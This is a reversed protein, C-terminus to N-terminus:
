SGWKYTLRGVVDWFKFKVQENYGGAGLAGTSSVTQGAVNDKGLDVYNGEIGLVWNNAVMYDWGGGATWGVRYDKQSFNDGNSTGNTRVGNIELRGAAVGGKAYLMSNGIVYGFRSEATTYWKLKADFIGTQLFTAPPSPLGINGTTGKIGTWSLTNELGFVFAGTQWNIGSVYGLIGGDVDHSATRGAGGFNTVFPVNIGGVVNGGSSGGLNLYDTTGWGWGGRIGLYPGSWSSAAPAYAPAAPPRIAMDAASAAGSLTVALASIAIATKMPFEGQQESEICTM